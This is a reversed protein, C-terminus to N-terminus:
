VGGGGGSLVLAGVSRLWSAGVSLVADDADRWEDDDASRMWDARDRLMVLAVTSRM